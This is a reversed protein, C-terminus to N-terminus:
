TTEIINGKCLLGKPDFVKKILKFQELENESYMIGMYKRKIKGIGHEASITGGLEVAYRLLKFYLEEALIKEDPNFFLNCHLHCDGIHGYVAHDLRSNELLQFIYNSYEKFSENPIATDTALKIQNNNILKENVLLPLRHRFDKQKEHETYTVAVWSDDALESYNSILEYWKEISIDINLEDTEQETWIAAVANEPINPYFPILLNISNLDFYEIVRSSLIKNSVDKISIDRVKDVFSMCSDINQFFSILGLIKSPKKLVRLGIEVIIGLTGESGIFLDLQRMNNKQYYATTNKKLSYKSPKIKFSYKKGSLSTSIFTEDKIKDRDRLYLEEGDVTLIKLYSVWDRTTGYRFTRSGSANTSVNGGISSNKETPNPPFFLNFKDLYEEIEKWSVGPEVTLELSEENFRLIRNFNEMSIIVGQTPVCAGTLGTRSASITIEQNRGYCSKLLDKLEEKSEPIFLKEANGRFNSADSLYDEYEIRDTKEIM